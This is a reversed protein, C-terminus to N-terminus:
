QESIFTYKGTILNYKGNEFIHGRYNPDDVSLTDYYDKSVLLNDKDLLDETFYPLNHYVIKKLKKDYIITQANSGVLLSYSVIIREKNVILNKIYNEDSLDIIIVDNSSKIGVIKGTGLWYDKTLEKKAESSINEFNFYDISKSIDKKETTKQCGSILFLIFLIKLYKIKM